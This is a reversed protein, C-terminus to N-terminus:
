EKDLKPLLERLIRVAEDFKEMEDDTLKGELLSIFEINNHYNRDIYEEARKTVEINIARRDEASHVRDVFGYEELRDIIKTAQQKSISVRRALETMNMAGSYRITQLCYYSELSMKDRISNKFPKDIKYHWYPLIFLINEIFKERNM